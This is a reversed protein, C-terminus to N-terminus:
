SSLHRARPEGARGNAVGFGELDAQEDTITSGESIAAVQRYCPTEVRVSRSTRPPPVNPSPGPSEATIPSSFSPSLMAGMCVVADVVDFRM